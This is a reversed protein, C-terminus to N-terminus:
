IEKKPMEKLQRGIHAVYKKIDLGLKINIGCNLGVNQVDARFDKVMFLIHHTTFSKKEVIVNLNQYKEVM